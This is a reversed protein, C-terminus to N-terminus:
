LEDDEELTGENTNAKIGLQNLLKLMQMNVSTLQKISKNEQFGKQTASNQWQSTVGRENIDEILMEKTIFLAMYDEVLDRFFPTNNDNEILQQLLSERIEALSTLTNLLSSSIADLTLLGSSASALERTFLNLSPVTNFSTSNSSIASINDSYASKSRPILTSIQFSSLM